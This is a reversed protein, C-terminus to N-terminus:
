VRELHWELKPRVAGPVKGSFNYREGDHINEAVHFSLVKQAFFNTKLGIEYHATVALGVTYTGSNLLNEPILCESLYVGAPLKEVNSAASFFSYVGDMTHFHFNPVFRGKVEKLIEYKM